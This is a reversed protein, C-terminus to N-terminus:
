AQRLGSYALGTRFMDFAPGRRIFVRDGRHDLQLAL